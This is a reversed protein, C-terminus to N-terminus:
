EDKAKVFTERRWPVMPGKVQIWFKVANSRVRGDVSDWFAPRHIDTYPFLPISKGAAEKQRILLNDKLEWLKLDPLLLVM